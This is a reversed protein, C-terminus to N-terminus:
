GQRRLSERLHMLIEGLTNLGEGKCVGWFTDGWTNGEEIHEEGTALLKDRLEPILGFKLYLLEKMVVVKEDEWTPSIVFSKKRTYRKAKGPTSLLRIAERDALLAAKAAQYAHEVTAYTKGKWVIESPWFNSLWRHEGKFSSISM